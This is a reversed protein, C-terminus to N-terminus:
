FHEHDTNDVFVVEASCNLAEAIKYIDKETFNDRQLKNNLNTNSTGLLEALRVATLGRKKLIAKIKWSATM